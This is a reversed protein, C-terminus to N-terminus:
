EGTTESGSRTAWARWIPLSVGNGVFTVHGDGFLVNVGGSHNSRATTLAMHTSAGEVCDVWGSNPPFLHYYPAHVWRGSLWSTGARGLYWNAWGGSNSAICESAVDNSVTTNLAHLDRDRQPSGSRPVSILRESAFATTSLGDTISALRIGRFHVFAGGPDQPWLPLNGRCYRYSSDKGAALADAPCHLIGPAALNLSTWDPDTSASPREIRIAEALAESDIFGAILSSPSFSWWTKTGGKGEQIIGSYLGPLSGNSTEFGHLGLGVQRLNNSCSLTRATARASMVAPLTMAVLLAVVCLVAVLEVLTFGRGSPRPEVGGHLLGACKVTKM